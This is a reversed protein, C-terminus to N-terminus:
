EVEMRAIEAKSLLFLIKREAGVQADEMVVHSDMGAFKGSINKGSKTFVRARRGSYRLFNKDNEFIQQNANSNPNIEKKDELGMANEIEEKEIEELFSETKNIMGGNGASIENANAIGLNNERATEAKEEADDLLKSAPVFDPVGGDMRPATKGEATLPIKKVAGSVGDAINDASRENGYGPKGDEMKMGRLNKNKQRKELNRHAVVGALVSAGVFAYGFFVLHGYSVPQFIKLLALVAGAVATGILFSWKLTHRM